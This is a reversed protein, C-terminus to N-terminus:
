NRLTVRDKRGGGRVLRSAEDKTAVFLVTKGLSGAEKLAEKATELLETTKELDFFIAVMRPRISIRRLLLIVVVNKLVLIHVLRFFSTLSHPKIPQILQLQCLLKYLCYAYSRRLPTITVYAGLMRLRKFM